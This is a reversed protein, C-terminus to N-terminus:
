YAWTYTESLISSGIGYFLVLAIKGGDGRFSHAVLVGPAVPLSFNVYATENRLRLNHWHSITGGIWTILYM